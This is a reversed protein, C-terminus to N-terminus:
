DMELFNEFLVNEGFYNCTVTGLSFDEYKQWM